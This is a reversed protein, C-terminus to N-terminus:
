EPIQPSFAKPQQDVQYSKFWNCSLGRSFWSVTNRRPRTTTWNPLKMREYVYAEIPGYILESRVEIPSFCWVQPINPVPGNRFTYVIIWTLATHHYVTISSTWDLSYFAAPKRGPKSQEEEGLMSRKDWWCFLLDFLYAYKKTGGWSGQLQPQQVLSSRLDGRSHSGQCSSRRLYEEIVAHLHKCSNVMPKPNRQNSGRRLCAWVWSTKRVNKIDM